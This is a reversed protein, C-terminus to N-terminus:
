HLSYEGFISQLLDRRMSMLISYFLKPVQIVFSTYEHHYHEGNDGAFMVCPFVEKRCFLFKCFIHLFSYESSYVSCVYVCSKYM